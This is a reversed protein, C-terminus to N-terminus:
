KAPLTKPLAGGGGQVAGTVAPKTGVVGCTRDYLLGRANLVYLLALLLVALVIIKPWRSKKDAFPDELSRVAGEPLSALKTLSDGFAVNIRVRGNIAWGNADLIPGITRHRLKLWAIIMSPGSVLLMLGAFAIPMQWWALNLFGTVVAAAATGIAGVALGIAAFIGAFKAVDFPQAPAIVKGAEAKRGADAIGAGAKDTVAKDRASALKTIQEGIMRGIRKYPSWFAQRISIPHEIVRVITADWDQGSRDYFVGNRGIMLYDSDGGTFAAAITMRENGGSRTCDCYALYTRSLMALTAHKGVDEVRVCLECSRSDIYLTGAQFVAKNRRTYFDRFSVFNNLLQFLDRHYRVLRDVSAIHDFEAALAKDRFILEAVAESVSSDLIERIRSLGLKEVSSGAKGASWAEYAAFRAGLESWDTETLATKEGLLPTVVEAVFAAMPAIWAPNIGEHLPLPKDLGIQALPFGSVEQIAPSLEKEAIAIYETEQRNLAGLARIDYRALRCRTFYDDIKGSVAALASSASATADRLPLIAGDTEAEKHWESYARADAFFQDAKEESVAPKGSRDMEPGLCDIIETIVQRVGADDASDAPIFGDGNFRALSFIRATDATDEVTIVMAEPKGLNTLIERASNILRTGEPLQDNIISLPLEPLGKTLDEPNRLLSGAWKVAAIIDPVRIRGDGDGDILELTRADFELGKVPCSLAVWLKQDLQDLSMLDAGTELRVQDFGGSRFFRWRHRSNRFDAEALDNSM